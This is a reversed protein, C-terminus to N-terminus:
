EEDWDDEDWAQVKLWPAIEDDDDPCLRYAEEDRRELETLERDLLLQAVASRILGSRPVQDTAAAEDLRALLPEDITVQITKM